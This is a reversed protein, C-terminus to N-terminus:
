MELEIEEGDSNVASFHIIMTRNKSLYSDFSTIRFTDDVQLLGSLITDEILDEDPNKTLIAYRDIGEDTNYTWEGLKTQLVQRVKQLLLEKDEILVLTKNDEQLIADGNDNLKIDKM